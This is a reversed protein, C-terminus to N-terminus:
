YKVSTDYGLYCVTPFAISNIKRNRIAYVHGLKLAPSQPEDECDLKCACCVASMVSKPIM